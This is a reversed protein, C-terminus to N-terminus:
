QCEYCGDMEVKTCLGKKSCIASIESGCRYIYTQRGHSDKVPAKIIRKLVQNEPCIYV